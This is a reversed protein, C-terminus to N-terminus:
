LYIVYYVLKMPEYNSPQLSCLNGKPNFIIFILSWTLWHISACNRFVIWYIDLMVHKQSRRFCLRM